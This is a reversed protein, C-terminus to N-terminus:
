DPKIGNEDLFDRTIQNIQYHLARNFTESLPLDFFSPDYKDLLALTQCIVRAAFETSKEHAGPKSSM